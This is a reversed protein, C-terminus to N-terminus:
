LQLHAEGAIERVLKQMFRQETQGEVFVALRNIGM